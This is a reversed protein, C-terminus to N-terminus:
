KFSFDYEEWLSSDIRNNVSTLCEKLEKYKRGGEWVLCV